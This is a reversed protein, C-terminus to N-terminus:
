INEGCPTIKHEPTIKHVTTLLEPFRNFISDAAQELLCRVAVLNDVSVIDINKNAIFFKILEDDEPHAIKTRVNVYVVRKVRLNVLKRWCEFCPQMTVYVTCEKLSVGTLAANIIANSEAHEMYRYKAPRTLPVRKDDCGFPPGNYGVSLIHKDDNVIVCGNSSEDISRQSILFALSLFYIDWDPKM